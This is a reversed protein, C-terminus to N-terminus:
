GPGARSGRPNPDGPRHKRPPGSALRPLASLAAAVDTAEAVGIRQFIELAQRLQGAAEGTRGEALACRGLGGLAHAEDWPIGDERALYLAEQHCARAQVLDWSARHLTGFENLVEALLERAGSDRIIGLAEALDRAAGALPLIRGTGELVGGTDLGFVM